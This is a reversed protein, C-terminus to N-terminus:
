ARTWVDHSVPNSSSRNLHLRIELALNWHSPGAPVLHGEDIDRRVLSAPLWTMGVGDKAVRRLTDGVSNEYCIDLFCEHQLRRRIDAVRWGVPSTAGFSLCRTPADARGPLAHKASGDAGPASVPVLADRDIMKFPFAQDNIGSGVGVHHFCLLLDAEDRELYFICNALDDVILRSSFEGMAAEMKQAWDIFFGAALSHQTVIRLQQREATRRLGDIEERIKTSQDVINMASALFMNGARNLKIPHNARDVLKAGVWAELNRIRRSFASQTINRQEAARSFSATKALCIFDKLHEFDMPRGRSSGVPTALAQGCPM